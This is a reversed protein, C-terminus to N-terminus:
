PTYTGQVLVFKKLFATYWSHDRSALYSTLAFAARTVPRPSSVGDGLFGRVRRCVEHDGRAAAVQPHRWRPWGGQGHQYRDVGDGFFGRVRRCIEGDGMAGRRRRIVISRGPEKSPPPPVPQDERDSPATGRVYPTTRHPAHRGNTSSSSVRGSRGSSHAWTAMPLVGRDTSVGIWGM